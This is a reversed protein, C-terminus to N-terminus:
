ISATSRSASIIPSPRSPSARAAAPSAWSSFGKPVIETSLSDRMQFLKRREILWKKLGELGGVDGLDTAGSIYEIVGSRNVLLRKEELVAALSEPGLRQDKALARRLAYRAEDLTLGQLARALQYLSKTTCRRGDGTQPAEEDRLFEVLEVLDPPRLELFMM